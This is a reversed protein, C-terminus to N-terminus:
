NSLASAKLFVGEFMNNLNKRGEFSNSYDSIENQFLDWVHLNNVDSIYFDDKEFNSHQILISEGKNFFGLKNKMLKFNKNKIQTILVFESLYGSHICDVIHNQIESAYEEDELFFVKDLPMIAIKGASEFKYNSIILSQVFGNALYNKEVKRKFDNLKEELM